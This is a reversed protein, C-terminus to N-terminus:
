KSKRDGDYSQYAGHEEAVLIEEHGFNNDAEDASIITADAIAELRQANGDVILELYPRDEPNPSDKSKILAQTYYKDVSMIQVVYNTNLGKKASNISKRVDIEYDKWEGYEIAKFEELYGVSSTPFVNRATAKLYPGAKASPTATTETIRQKGYIKYYEWLETKALPYDGAKAAAEVKAMAPYEAYRFYPVKLWTNELPDWEGFFEEDTIDQPDKYTPYFEYDLKGNEDVPSEYWFIPDDTPKWTNTNTAGIGYRAYGITIDAGMSFIITLALIASILRKM